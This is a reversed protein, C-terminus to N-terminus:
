LCGHVARMLSMARPDPQGPAGSWMQNMVYSFGLRAEPDAYGLAGGAGAHGFASPSRPDDAELDPMVFGLSRRMWTGLVADLRVAAETGAREVAERSLM